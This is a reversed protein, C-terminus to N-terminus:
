GRAGADRAPLAVRDGAGLGQKIEIAGDLREGTIVPQKRLSGASEVYVFREDGDRHVAEGPVVLGDHHATRIVVNATMAPKLRAQSGHIAISVAYNVVGSVITAMPAIRSVTGTFTLDPYAETTFTVADGPRVSGIDTEDVMAVLELAHDAIITVFTPATFAAAVTEGEQTSVSAITGAIPARIEVYSLNVEVAALDRRARELAARAGELALRADDLTQRPIIQRSALENDRTFDMSAKDVGVQAVAVAAQAQARQAELSRADIEAIIAGKRIHSGVTVNLKRM